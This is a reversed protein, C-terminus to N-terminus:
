HQFEGNKRNSSARIASVAGPSRIPSIDHCPNRGWGAFNGSGVYSVTGDRVLLEMAQWIEERPTARDVHHMRDLDIQFGGV